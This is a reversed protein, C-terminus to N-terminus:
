TWSRWNEFVASDSTVLISYAFRHQSIYVTRRDDRLILAEDFEIESPSVGSWGSRIEITVGPGQGLTEYLILNQEGQSQHYERGLGISRRELDISVELWGPKLAILFLDDYGHEDVTLDGEVRYLEGGDCRVFVISCVYTSPYDRLPRETELLYLEIQRARRLRELIVSDFRLPTSGELM